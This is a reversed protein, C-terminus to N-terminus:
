GAKTGEMRQNKRNTRILRSDGHRNREMTLQMQIEIQRSHLNPNSLQENSLRKVVRRKANPRNFNRETTTSGTPADGPIRFNSISFKARSMPSPALHWLALPWVWSRYWGTGMFCGGVGCRRLWVCFFGANSMEMRIEMPMQCRWRQGADWMEDM